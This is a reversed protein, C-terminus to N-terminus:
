GRGNWARGVSLSRGCGVTYRSPKWPDSPKSMTRIGARSPHGIGYSTALWVSQRGVKSSSGGGVPVSGLVLDIDRCLDVFAIFVLGDFVFSLVAALLGRCRGLLGLLVDGKPPAAFLLFEGLQSLEQADVVSIM